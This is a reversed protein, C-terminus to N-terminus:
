NGSVLSVAGADERALGSFFELVRPFDAAPIDRRSVALSRKVVLTEGEADRLIEYSTESQLGPGDSKRGSPTRALTRGDPLRMRVESTESFLYPFFVPLRRGTGSTLAAFQPLRALQPSILESTGARMVFRPVEFRATVRLPDGPQPPRTVQHSKLVAGPCLWALIEELADEKEATRGEEVMASLNVRRIGWADIVYDGEPGGGPTVRAVAQRHRRNREATFLPTEVLDGLGDEKVVLVPVGQDAWPLDGFPADESTPDLFLYGEPRPIAVIAHNFSPSPYERELLGADRTRILVPLGELGVARLMAILLTAKDKCDGYRHLFVQGNDHPQWGGVGMEIAVYSIKQQLFEYLRRIKEESGTLGATATKAAEVVAPGAVMRNRSLDRYWRAIGDWSETDIRHDGFVIWRPYIAVQPLVDGAPPSYPEDRFAPVDRAEWHHVVIGEREERTYSPTGRVSIRLPFSAPTRVTYSLSRSPIENQFQFVDPLFFLGRLSEEYSYELIAGPEAGTFHIGKARSDSYLEYSAFASSDSIQQKKIEQQKGAPSKLSARLDRITVSPNYGVWAEGYREVGRPTLVQTRNLYRVRAEMESVIEVELKEELIVADDGLNAAGPRSTIEGSSALLLSSLLMTRFFPAGAPTRM